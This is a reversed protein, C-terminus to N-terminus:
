RGSRRPSGAAIRVATSARRRANEARAANVANEWQQVRLRNAAINAPIPQPQQQRRFGVVGAIGALGAVGLRTGSSQELGVVSPLVVVAVATLLGARLRGGGGGGPGREPLMGSSDPRAPWPVTDPAVHTVALPLELTSATSGDAARSVVRFMWTGAAAEAGGGDRGDWLVDLSDGVAGAYLQRPPDGGRQVSATVNHYTSAYLRLILRDGAARLVTVPPPAVAVLRTALRTEQFLDSVEPPFVLQDPRARPDAALLRVFVARASDRDGRFLETAGLYTLARIRDATALSSDPTALLRRLLAAASDYSLGDYADIARALAGPRQQAGLPIPQGAALLALTFALRTRRM